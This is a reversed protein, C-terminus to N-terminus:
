SCNCAAPYGGQWCCGCGGAGACSASTEWFCSMTRGCTAGWFHDWGSCGQTIRCGKHQVAMVSSIAPSIAMVVVSVIFVVAVIKKM